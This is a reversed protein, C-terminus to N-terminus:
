GLYLIKCGTWTASSVPVQSKEKTLRWQSSLKQGSSLMQEPKLICTQGWSKTKTQVLYEKPLQLPNRKGLHLGDKIYSILYVRTYESITALGVWDDIISRLSYKKRSARNYQIKNSLLPFTKGLCVNHFINSKKISGGISHGIQSVMYYHHSKATTNNSNIWWVTRTLGRFLIDQQACDDKTIWGEWAQEETELARGM